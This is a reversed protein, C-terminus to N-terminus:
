VLEEGVATRRSLTLTQQQEGCQKREHRVRSAQLNCQMCQFQSSHEFRDARFVTICAVCVEYRVRWVQVESHNVPTCSSETTEDTETM